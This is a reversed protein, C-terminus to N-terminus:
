KILKFIFSKKLDVAKKPCLEHCCFCRICLQLDINPFGEDMSIVGPSCVRSCEGCKVCKKYNIVPKGALKKNIYVELNKPIM